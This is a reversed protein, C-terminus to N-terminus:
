RKTVQTRVFTVPMGLVQMQRAGTVTLGRLNPDTTYREQVKPGWSRALILAVTVATIVNMLQNIRDKFDKPRYLMAAWAVIGAALGSIAYNTGCNPHIALESEGNRLRLEAEKAATMLDNIDLKGLAYFGSPTSYGGGRLNPVRSALIQFTAHELAHNRRILSLAENVM